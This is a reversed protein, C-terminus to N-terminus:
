FCMCIKTINQMNKHSALCEAAGLSPCSCSSSDTPIGAMVRPHVAGCVRPHPVPQLLAPFETHGPLMGPSQVLPTQLIPIESFQPNKIGSSLAPEVSCKSTITFYDRDSFAGPASIPIHNGKLQIREGGREERVFIQSHTKQSVDFRDGFKSDPYLALCIVM